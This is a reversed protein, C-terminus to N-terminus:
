WHGAIGNDAVVAFCCRYGIPALAICGLETGHLRLSRRSEGPDVALESTM